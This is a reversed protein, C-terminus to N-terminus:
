ETVGSLTPVSLPCVYKQMDDAMRSEEYKSRNLSEFVIQKPLVKHCFYSSGFYAANKETFQIRKDFLLMQMEKERFLRVPASGNLWLNSLLLAFPKGFSLCREVVKQKISFPPNSVILDWKEPEYVFFDRGTRIHSHVVPIGAAKLALVYESNETDFPCWVTKGKPIYKVIPAVAYAPTYQEDSSKKPTYGAYIM